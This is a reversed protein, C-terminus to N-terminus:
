AKKIINMDIIFEELYLYKREKIKNMALTKM